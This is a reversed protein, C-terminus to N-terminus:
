LRPEMRAGHWFHLIEVVGRDTHIRYYINYPPRVLKRVGPRAPVITGVEPWRELIRTHNVLAQGVRSAAEPNDQAIYDVVVALNNLAEDSFFIKFGM